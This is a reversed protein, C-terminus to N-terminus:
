PEVLHVPTGDVVAECVLRELGFKDVTTFRHRVGRLLRLRFRGDKNTAEWSESRPYLGFPGVVAVQFRDRICM